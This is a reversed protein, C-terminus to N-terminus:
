LDLPRINKEMWQRYMVESNPVVPPFRSLWHTRIKYKTPVWFLHSNMPRLNASSPLMEIIASAKAPFLPCLKSTEMTKALAYKDLTFQLHSGKESKFYSFWYRAGNKLSALSYNMLGVRSLHCGLYALRHEVSESRCGAYIGACKLLGFLQRVDDMGLRDGNVYVVTGTWRNSLELLEALKQFETKITFIGRSITKGSELLLDYREQAGDLLDRAHAEDKRGAAKRDIEVSVWWGRDKWKTRSKMENKVNCYNTTKRALKHSLFNVIFM